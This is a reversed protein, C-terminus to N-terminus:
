TVGAVSNVTGLSLGHSLQVSVTHPRFTLMFLILGGIFLKSQHNIGELFYSPIKDCTGKVWPTPFFRYAWVHPCPFYVSSSSLRSHQLPTKTPSLILSELTMDAHIIESLQSNVDGNVSSAPCSVSRILLWYLSACFDWFVSIIEAEPIVGAKEKNQWRIISLLFEFSWPIWTYNTLSIRADLCFHLYEQIKLMSLICFVHQWYNGKPCSKCVRPRLVLRCNKLPLLFPALLFRCFYVVFTYSQIIGCYKTNVWHLSNAAFWLFWM